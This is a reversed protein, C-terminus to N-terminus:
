HDVDIYRIENQKPWYSVWKEGDCVVSNSTCWLRSLFTNSCRFMGCAAALSSADMKRWRRRMMSIQNLFNTGESCRCAMRTLWRRRYEFPWWWWWWWQSGVTNPLYSNRRLLYDSPLIFWTRKKSNRDLFIWWIYDITYSNLWVLESCHERWTYYKFSCKIHRRKAAAYNNIRVCANLMFFSIHVRASSKLLWWALEVLLCALSSRRCHRHCCFCSTFLSHILQHM